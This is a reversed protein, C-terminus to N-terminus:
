LQGILVSTRYQSARSAFDAIFLYIFLYIFLFNFVVSVNSKLAM